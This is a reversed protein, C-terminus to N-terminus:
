GASDTTSFHPQMASARLYAEAQSVADDYAGVLTMLGLIGPAEQEAREEMARLAAAFSDQGAGEDTNSRMGHM